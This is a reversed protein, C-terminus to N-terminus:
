ASSCTVFVSITLRGQQTSKQSEFQQLKDVTKLAGTFIFCEPFHGEAAGLFSTWWGEGWEVGTVCVNHRWWIFVNEANRARQASFESTVPSNGDCLGTVRLKSTKKIQAQIFAQTFFDYPQRNSVGDRENHRWQLTRKPATNDTICYSWMSRMVNWIVSLESTEEANRKQSVVFFVCFRWIVPGKHPPDVGCHTQIMPPLSDAPQSFKVGLTAIYCGTHCSRRKM